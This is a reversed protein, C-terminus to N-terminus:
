LHIRPVSVNERSEPFPGWSLAGQAGRFSSNMIMQIKLSLACIHIFLDIFLYIPIFIFRSVIGQIIPLWCISVGVLAM